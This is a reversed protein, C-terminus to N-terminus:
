NTIINSLYIASKTSNAASSSICDIQQNSYKAVDHYGYLVLIM